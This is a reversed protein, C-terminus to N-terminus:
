KIGKEYKNKLRLYTQYEESDRIVRLKADDFYGRLFDPIDGNVGNIYIVVKEEINRAGGDDTRGASAADNRRNIADALALDLAMQTLSDM